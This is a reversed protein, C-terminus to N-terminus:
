AGCWKESWKMQSNYKYVYYISSSLGIIFHESNLKSIRLYSTRTKNELNRHANGNARVNALLASPFYTGKSCAAKSKRYRTRILSFYEGCSVTPSLNLYLMLQSDWIIKSIFFFRKYTFLFEKSYRLVKEICQCVSWSKCKM